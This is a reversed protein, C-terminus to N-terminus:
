LLVQGPLNMEVKGIAGNGTVWITEFNSGTWIFNQANFSTQVRLILQGTQDIVDLGAGTATVIYGNRACRVGDTAGNGATYLPRKSVPYTYDESLKYEYITREGASNWTDKKGRDAPADSGSYAGSDGIYLIKGDPSFGIGDPQHLSDDVIHTARTKPNFRWTATKLQPATDSTGTYWSYNPDTFWVDGTIPHVVLDDITNFYYGFYNNLWVQSENTEPDWTQLSPKFEKGSTHNGGSAGFWVLGDKFYAGNPVYIPPDPLFHELVPPHRNLDVSLLPLHGVALEAFVLRNQSPIYVPAEHVDDSVNFMIEVSPSPGLIELGRERDFVVFSADKILDWSHGSDSNIAVAGLSQGAGEASSREFHYPLASAYDNVCVVGTPGCREVLPKGELALRGLLAQTTFFISKINTTRVM